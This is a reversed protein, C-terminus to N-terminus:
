THTYISSLATSPIAVTHRYPQHTQRVYRRLGPHAFRDVCVKANDDQACRWSPGNGGLPVAAPPLASYGKELSKILSPDPRSVESLSQCWVDQGELSACVQCQADLLSPPVATAYLVLPMHTSMVRSRDKPVVVRLQLPAPLPAQSPPPQCVHRLATALRDNSTVPYTGNSLYEHDPVLLPQLACLLLGSVDRMVKACRDIPVAARLCQPPLVHSLPQAPDTVVNAKHPMYPEGAHADLNIRYYMGLEQLVAVTDTCVRSTPVFLSPGSGWDPSPGTSTANGCMTAIFDLMSLTTSAQYLREVDEMEEVTCKGSLRCEFVSVPEVYGPTFPGLGWHEHALHDTDLKPFEESQALIGTIGGALMFLHLAAWQSRVMVPMQHRDVVQWTM